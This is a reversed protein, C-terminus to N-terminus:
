QGAKEAALAIRREEMKAGLDTVDIKKMAAPFLVEEEEAVHDLVAERLESFREMFEPADPRLQKLTKIHEKVAQHEAEAIAIVEDPRDREVASGRRRDEGLDESRAEVLIAPYFLEEELTAHMELENFIQKAVAAKDQASELESFLQEVKDHDSHLLDIANIAGHQTKAM